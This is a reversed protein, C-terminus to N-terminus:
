YQGVLFFPSVLYVGLASFSIVALSIVLAAAGTTVAEFISEELGELFTKNMGMGLITSGGVALRGCAVM